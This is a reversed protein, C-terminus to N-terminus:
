SFAEHLVAQMLMESDKKSQNLRTELEDCLHMLQDVKAVIRHQESLPPLPIPCYKIDKLYLAKVATAGSSSLMWQQSWDTCLAFMLYHEYLIRLPKILIVSGMLCFYNDIDVVTCRGITGRSCILIDGREPDCRQRFLKADEQSVFQPDETVVGTKTVHKATLLLVGSDTKRPSLHEGDTIKISLEQLRAWEWGQPLEYPIEDETIPTLSKEKKIKGETILKEKEAKIHKLLESAPEDNPDQTALKGQVALQLIAQRLKNVHASDNYILDFNNCIFQLHNAFEDITKSSLLEELAADNLSTYKTSTKEQCGDLQDCLQMLQDVKSVIRKQEPLPALPIVQNKVTSTSLEIQNTTGSARDEFGDQITPSALFGFLYQSNIM